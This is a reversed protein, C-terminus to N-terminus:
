FIVIWSVMYGYKTIIFNVLWILSLLLGSM